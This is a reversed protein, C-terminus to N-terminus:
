PGCLPSDMCWGSLVLASACVIASSQYTPAATFSVTPAAAARMPKCCCLGATLPAIQALTFM